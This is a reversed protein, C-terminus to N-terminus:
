HGVLLPRYRWALFRMCRRPSEQQLLCRAPATEEFYPSLAMGINALTCVYLFTCARYMDGCASGTIEGQRGGEWDGM